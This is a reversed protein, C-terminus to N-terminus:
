LLFTESFDPAVQTGIVIDKGPRRASTGGTQLGLSDQKFPTSYVARGHLPTGRTLCLRVIRM